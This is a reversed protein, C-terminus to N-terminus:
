PAWVGLYVSGNYVLNMDDIQNVFGKPDVGLNSVFFAVNRPDKEMAHFGVDDMGVIVFVPRSRSVGSLSPSLASIPSGVRPDLWVTSNLNICPALSSGIRWSTRDAWTIKDGYTNASLTPDQIGYFSVISILFICLILGILKNSVKRVILASLPLMLLYLWYFYRGGFTPISRLAFNIITGGLGLFGLIRVSTGLYSSINHSVKLIGKSIGKVASIGKSFGSSIDKISLLMYSAIISPVLVWAIFYVSLEPTYWPLSTGGSFPAVQGTLLDAFRTLASVNPRIIVDLVFTYIWYTLSVIALLGLSRIMDNRKSGHLLAILMLPLTFATVMLVYMAHALIGTIWLPYIALICALQSKAGEFLRKLVLFATVLFLM